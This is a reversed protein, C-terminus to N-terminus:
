DLVLALHESILRASASRDSAFRRANYVRRLNRDNSEKKYCFLLDDLFIALNLGEDDFNKAFKLRDSLSSTRFSEAPSEKESELGGVRVVQMRSLLTPIVLAEERLALFFHTNETPDEFTKLLANQAELTISEPILFFIKKAGFARRSARVSLERADDIGFTDLKLLLFDPNQVRDIGWEKLVGGLYTDAAERSGLLLYAHHM